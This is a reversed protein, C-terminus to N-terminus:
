LGEELMTELMAEIQQDTFHQAAIAETPCWAACTGCGKCLAENIRAVFVGPSTEILEPAHFDCISVCTGCGRCLAENVTCVTPDLKIKERCVLSAAKGAAASAQAMSEAASKPSQICGALFIGDTTTEVPGLKPHREMMFGDPSRPVKLMEKFTNTDPEKPVMGTALIVADVEMNVTDKLMTGFAELRLGGDAETVVPKQDDPYRIFVVGKGRAERYREEAGHGVTRMDRYFVAVETGQEKLRLAQKVTTPCCIRSCHPNEENRSGVCQIFVVRKPKAGNILVEGDAQAFMRELDMNTLVNSHKAYGYEDKPDYVDSGSALIISGVKLTNKTTTVEFNGVFGGVETIETETMVSVRSAKLENLKRQLLDVAPVNEPLLKDLLRLRGGLDKEKEVLTVPFGQADLDLASQIGAPGGGIVLVSGEVSIEKQELPELWQARAVAMRIQDMARQTALLPEQSHVWSCQDRVNVM